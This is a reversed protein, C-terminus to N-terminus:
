LPNCGPFGAAKREEFLQKSERWHKPTNWKELHAPLKAPREIVESDTSGRGWHMHKQILDRRQWFVGLKEAVEQLEEDVFMHQYGPWLPGNGGYARRAFERGIWASGAVRDIPANSFGGVGEHWRDGVPQVVGFTGRFYANMSEAIEGPTHHHDPEVDDGGIVVWEATVDYEFVMDSLRNIASAYGPYNPHWVTIRSEIREFEPGPGDKWLAVGYGADFWQQVTSEREQRASPICLWAKPLKIGGTEGPTTPRSLAPRGSAIEQSTIVTM